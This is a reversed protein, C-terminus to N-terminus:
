TIQAEWNTGGPGLHNAGGIQEELDSASVEERNSSQEELDCTLPIGIQEGLYWTGRPLLRIRRRAGGGQISKDNTMKHASSDIMSKTSKDNPM